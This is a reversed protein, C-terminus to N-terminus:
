NGVIASSGLVQLQASDSNATTLTFLMKRAANPVSWEYSITHTPGNATTQAREDNMLRSVLPAPSMSVLGAFMKEAKTTDARRAYVLCIKKNSPLAVVFTGTKDPVSWADGQDGSLFQASKEPPLKPMDKLKTRLGELNSLNKLCLSAYINAFSDAQDEADSAFCSNSAMVGISIFIIFTRM